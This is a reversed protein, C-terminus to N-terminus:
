LVRIKVSLLPKLNLCRLTGWHHRKQINGKMCHTMYCYTFMFKKCRQSASLARYIFDIFFFLTPECVGLRTTLFKFRIRNRVDHLLVNAYYGGTDTMRATSWDCLVAGDSWDCCHFAPNLSVSEKFQKPIM